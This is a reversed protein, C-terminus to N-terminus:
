SRFLRTYLRQQAHCFEEYAPCVSGASDLDRGPLDAALGAITDHLRALILQGHTHGIPIARVGAGIMGLAAQHLYVSVAREADDTACGALIGFVVAHHWVRGEGGPKAPPSPGPTLPSLSGASIEPNLSRNQDGEGRGPDGAIGPPALREFGGALHPLAPAAWPWPEALRRLQEGMDRSAQRLTAPLLGVDLYRNARVINASEGSRMARFAAVLVAGETPAVSHMLGRRTWEELAQPSAVLGREIAAELGWSHSFGGIPLASDGLQLLPLSM